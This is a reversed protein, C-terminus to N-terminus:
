AASYRASSSSGRGSRSRELTCHASPSSAFGQDSRWVRRGHGLRDPSAALSPGLSTKAHGLRDPSAALSLGLSTKGHGLRDPSAALSPGHSTKSSGNRM